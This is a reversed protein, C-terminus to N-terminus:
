VEYRRQKMELGHHLLVPWINPEQTSYGQKAGSLEKWDLSRHLIVMLHKAAM